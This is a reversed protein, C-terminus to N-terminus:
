REVSYAQIYLAMLPLAEPNRPVIQLVIIEIVPLSATLNVLAVYRPMSLIDYAKLTKEVTESQCLREALDWADCLAMNAGNGAFPSM